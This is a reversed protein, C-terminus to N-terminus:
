EKTLLGKRKAIMKNLASVNAFYYHGENKLIELEILEDVDRALTRDGVNSYLKALPINLDPIENITFKDGIPIELGLSRKRKFVEKHKIDVKAFTDYVYNQWTMKLQSEQIKELTQKLGDRYGVLAYLVFDSLDNNQYAKDLQRYYEPRTLNYHNSLIHLTIDPNGGRSLVYFELLRGVRGNGDGFPHIWELYVHAVIAELFVDSFNSKKNPDYSFKEQLFACYHNILDPIEKPDPCIYRGVIADTKRFEGPIATFQDGLGKGVMEHYDLILEPTILQNDDEYVTRFLISDFADIINKVEEGQYVMSEPLKKGEMIKVIEEDSLMNGEIATTSQAGKALSVHMLSRYYEPMIPTNNIAQLYAVSQGLLLWFRDTLELKVDFGIKPYKKSRKM